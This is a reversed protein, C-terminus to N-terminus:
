RCRPPLPERGEWWVKAQSLGGGDKVQGVGGVTRVEGTRPRPAKRQGSGPQM